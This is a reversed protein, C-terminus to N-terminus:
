RTEARGEFVIRWRGDEYRWFQQKRYRLQYNNSRYDQDFLAIVTDNEGPYEFLDLEDIGVEVFTKKKANRRTAAAMRAYDQKGTHYTPSYHSLYREVDLSQWDTQWQTIATLLRERKDRWAGPDLWELERAIVIPTRGADVYSPLRAVLRNSLIVCGRSDRPPRSYVTRPTGHLWIGSGGRNKLRDWRNPYNIPYAGAGYLEPLEDDDLRSALHYVGLPTKEDGKDTKGLGGNGTSVYYDAVLGPAGGENALVYLRSKAADLVFAYEHRRSLRMVAGPLRGRAPGRYHARARAEDVMGRVRTKDLAGPISMLTDQHARAALLDAYMLRGLRFAPQEDLLSRFQELSSADDGALLADIGRLLASEVGAGHAAEGTTQAVAGAPLAVAFLLAYATRM